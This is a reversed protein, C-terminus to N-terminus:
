VFYREKYSLNSTIDLAKEHTPVAGAPILEAPDDAYRLLPAALKGGHLYYRGGIRTGMQKGMYKFIYKSVKDVANEGTILLATTFGASFDSINYVQKGQRKILRGNSAYRAASLSLASSNCVAHFHISKGDKHYEPVIVYRLDSRQVRNSLWTRMLGYCDDWSSRDVSDPSLTLTAFTDLEPNCQIIDFCSIKARRVARIMNAFRQEELPELDIDSGTKGPKIHGDSYGAKEWGSSRFRPESFEQVSLLKLEGGPLVSYKAKCKHHVLNESAFLRDSLASKSNFFNSEMIVNQRM